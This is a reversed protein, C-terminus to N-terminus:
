SIRIVFKQNTSFLLDAPYHSILIRRIKKSPNHKSIFSKQTYKCFSFNFTIIANSKGISIFDSSVM